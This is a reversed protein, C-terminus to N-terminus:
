GGNNFIRVVDADEMPYYVTESTVLGNEDYTDLSIGHLVFPQGNRATGTWTWLADGQSGDESIWRQWTRITADLGGYLTNRWGPKWPVSGGFAKDTFYAGPAAFADLAHLVEEQTGYADPDEIIAVISALTAQSKDHRLAAAAACSGDASNALETVYSELQDREATVDVLEGQAQVLELNLTQFEDTEAVDTACGSVPLTLAALLVITLRRM